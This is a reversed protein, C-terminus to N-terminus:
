KEILCFKIYIKVVEEDDVIPKVTSKYWSKPVEVEETCFVVLKYKEPVNWDPVLQGKKRLHINDYRKLESLVEKTM